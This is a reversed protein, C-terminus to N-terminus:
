LWCCVVSQINRFCKWTNTLNYCDFSNILTRTIRTQKMRYVTYTNIFIYVTVCHTSPSLLKHTSHCRLYSHHDTVKKYSYTACSVSEIKVGSPSWETIRVSVHIKCIFTFAYVKTVHFPSFYTIHLSPEVDDTTTTQVNSCRSHLFMEYMCVARVYSSRTCTLMEYMYVDWLTFMEYIPVDRLHSCRTCTFVEHM